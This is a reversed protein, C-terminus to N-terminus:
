DIKLILFSCNIVYFIRNRIDKLLRYICLLLFNFENTHSMNVMFCVM